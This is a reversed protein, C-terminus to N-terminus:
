LFYNVITVNKFINFGDSCKYCVAGTAANTAGAFIANTNAVQNTQIGTGEGGPNTQWQCLNQDFKTAGHFMNDFSDPALAAEQVDWSLLPKNFNVADKFMSTFSTVTRTDWADIAQNFNSAGEFM